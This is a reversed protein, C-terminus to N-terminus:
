CACPVLVRVAWDCRVRVSQREPAGAAGMALTEGAGEHRVMCAAVAVAARVFSRAPSRSILAVPGGVMTMVGTRRRALPLSASASSLDCFHQPSPRPPPVVQPPAEFVAASTAFGTGRGVPTRERPRVHVLASLVALINYHM